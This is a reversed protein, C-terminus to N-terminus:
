TWYGSSIDQTYTSDTCVVTYRNMGYAWSSGKSLSLWENKTGDFNITVRSCNNFAYDEIYTVGNHIDVTTLSQCYKFMDESIVTVGSPIVFSTISSHEFASAKIQTVSDPITIKTAGCYSFAQIGIVELGDPLIIENLQCDSFFENPLEKGSTVVAKTLFSPFRNYSFFESFQFDDICPLYVTELNSCRDLVYCGISQIGDPIKIYSLGVCGYFANDGISILSEPLAFEKIKPCSYFANAGISILGEPLTVNALLACGYFANDSIATVSNPIVIETLSTCGSFAGKGITKVSDPIVVSKLETADSFAWDAIATTGEPIVFDTIGLSILTSYQGDLAESCAQFLYYISDPLNWDDRHFGLTTLLTLADEYDGNKAYYMAFSDASSRMEALKEQAADHEYLTTLAAAAELYKSDSFDALAQQYTAEANKDNYDNLAGKAEEIKAVSDKYNGLGELIEIAQEFQNSNILSIASNYQEDLYENDCAKVVKSDTDVKASDYNEFMLETIRFSVTLAESDASWLKLGDDNQSTEWKLDYKLETDPLFSGSFSAEGSTLQNGKADSVTMLGVVRLIAINSNNRITFKFTCVLSSSTVNTNIKETVIIDINEAAKEYSRQKGAQRSTVLGFILVISAIVILIVQISKIRDATTKIKKSNM